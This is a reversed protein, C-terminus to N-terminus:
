KKVYKRGNKMGESSRGGRIGKWKVRRYRLMNGGM